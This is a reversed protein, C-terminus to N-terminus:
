GAEGARPLNFTFSTGDAGSSRVTLTGGHAAVIQQAIFLGLGLGQTGTSKGHAARRFPDFLRPLIQAPIPEGSNHVTCEVAVPGAHVLVTVPKDRQGYTLANGILNSFVQALRDADWAGTGDGRHEGEIRQEPHVAALEDIVQTCIAHIDGPRREIPIGGGSRARTFELVQTIMRSMRAASTELRKVTRQQHPTLTAISGLVHAAVNVSNLPNRLDHGLMGIFLDRFRESSDRDIGLAIQDAVTALTDVMPYSLTQKSVLAMVGLLRDRVMLPYGAFAAMGEKVAWPYDPDDPDDTLPNSVHAVRGVAIRGIQSDLTVRTQAAPLDPCAGASARLDLVEQGANYIWIRACEVGGAIMAQCCRTLQVSLEDDSVLARGVTAALTARMRAAVQTTVDFGFAAVGDVVGAANEVPAYVFKLHLTEEQGGRHFTVPVEEGLYSVGSQLVQRLLDDFGKGRLEPLADLLPRGVVEPTKGWIEFAMPNAFEIVHNEGRLLAIGAPADTFLSEVIRRQAEKEAEAQKRVAAIALQSAM